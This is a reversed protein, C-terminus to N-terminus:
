ETKLREVSLSFRKDFFCDCTDEPEGWEISGPRSWLPVLRQEHMQRVQASFGHATGAMRCGWWHCERGRGLEERNLGLVDLNQTDFGFGLFIIQKAACLWERARAIEPRKASREEGIAFLTKPAFPHVDSCVEALTAGASHLGFHAEERGQWQLDGPLEGYIHSVISRAWELAKLPDMRWSVAAMAALRYEILRDYNFTVLRLSHQANADRGTAAQIAQFVRALWGGYPAKLALQEKELLAVSIAMKALITRTEDGRQRGPAGTEPLTALYADISPQGSHMFESSLQRAAAKHDWVSFISLYNSARSIAETWLIENLKSGIPLELGRGASAGAGVVLVTLNRNAMRLRIRPHTVDVAGGLRPPVPPPTADVQRGHWRVPQKSVTPTDQHRAGIREGAAWGRERAAGLRDDAAWSGDRGANFRDNAAWGRERAAGGREEAAGARGGPARALGESGPPVTLPEASATHRPQQHSRADVQM